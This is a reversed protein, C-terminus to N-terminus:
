TIFVGRKYKIDSFAQDQRQTAPINKVSNLSYFYPIAAIINNKYHM